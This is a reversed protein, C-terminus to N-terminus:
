ILDLNGYFWHLCEWLWSTSVINISSNIWFFYLSITCLNRKLNILALSIFLSLIFSKFINSTKFQILWLFARPFYLLTLTRSGKSPPIPSFIFVLKKLYKGWQRFFLFINLSKWVKESNLKMWTWPLHAM